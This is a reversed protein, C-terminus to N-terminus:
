LQSKNYPTSKILQQWYEFYLSSHESEAKITAYTSELTEPSMHQLESWDNLVILPLGLAKFSDNMVSKTVIPITGLYMAEWTRHCDAGNGEPSAVFAHQQLTTLYSWSERWDTYTAAAPHKQLYSLAEGRETPNTAVNFKYLIKFEKEVKIKRLTDFYRPIGHLYYWKNELGIPLPTLKPHPALCNQAFWHIVKEDIYNTHEHTINEDGNHTILIYPATIKPHIDALFEKVRYSQVFVIDNKQVYKPNISSDMDLVHQALSRFSDGSLYPASTPHLTCLRSVRRKLGNKYKRLKTLYM